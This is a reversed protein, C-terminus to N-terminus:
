VYNPLVQVFDLDEIKIQCGTELTFVPHWSVSDFWLEEPM